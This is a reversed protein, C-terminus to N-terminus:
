NYVVHLGSHYAVLLAAGLTVTWVLWRCGTVASGANCGDTDCVVSCGAMKRDNYIVQNVMWCHSERGLESESNTGGSDVTCTRIVASFDDSFAFFM